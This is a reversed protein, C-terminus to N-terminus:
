PSILEDCLNQNQALHSLHFNNSVSILSQSSCQQQLLYSTYQFVLFIVLWVWLWELYLHLYQLVMGQLLQTHNVPKYIYCSQSIIMQFSILENPNDNEM